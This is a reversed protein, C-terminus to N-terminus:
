SAEPEDSGGDAEAEDTIEEEGEGDDLVEIPSAALEEGEAEGPESGDKGPDSLAEVAVVREGSAPDIRILRVGQTNRGRTPIDRVRIRIVRGTDTVLMLDESDVVTLVGVVKGNRDNTKITIVGQTGRNKLPYDSAPTRKGFGKECVTLLTIDSGLDRCQLDLRRGDFHWLCSGRRNRPRARSREVRGNSRERGNLGRVDRGGMGLSRPNNSRIRDLCCNASRFGGVNCGRKRRLIGCNSRESDGLGHGHELAKAVNAAFREAGGEQGNALVQTDVLTGTVQDLQVIFQHIGVLGHRDGHGLDPLAGNWGCDGAARDQDQRRFVLQKVKADVASDLVLQTKVHPKQGVDGDIRLESRLLQVPRHEDGAHAM